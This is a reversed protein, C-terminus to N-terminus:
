LNMKKFIKVLYTRSVKLKYKKEVYSKLQTFNLNGSRKIEYLVPMLKVLRDQLISKKSKRRLKKIRNQFIGVAKYDLNTLTYGATRKSQKQLFLLNDVKDIALDFNAFFVDDPIKCLQATLNLVETLVSIKDKKKKLIKELKETNM